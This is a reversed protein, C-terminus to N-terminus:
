QWIYNTCATGYNTRIMMNDVRVYYTTSYSHNERGCRVYEAMQKGNHGIGGRAIFAGNTGNRLELVSYGTPGSNTDYSLSAFYWFNSKITTLTVVTGFNTNSHIRFNPPNVSHDINAVAYEGNAEIQVLDISDGLGFTAPLMQFFFSVNMQGQRNGSTFYWRWDHFSATTNLAFWGSKSSGGDSYDVGACRVPAILPINLDNTVLNRVQPDPVIRPYVILENTHTGDFMRNTTVVGVSAGEFDMLLHVEPATTGAPPKKSLLMERRRAEALTAVGLLAVLLILAGRRM